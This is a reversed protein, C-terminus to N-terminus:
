AKPCSERYVLKTPFTVKYTGAEDDDLLDKMVKVSARGMQQTEVHVSTLAPNAFEAATTDNFSILSVEEPVKIGAEKFAELAGIAMADNAAILAEPFSGSKLADKITEYGSQPTFNGVYVLDPDYQGRAALSKKYDRFRFDVLNNKDFNSDLDGDLLAIREKGQGWFVELAEQIALTLWM